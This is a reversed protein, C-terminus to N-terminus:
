GHRVSRSCLLPKSGPWRREPVMRARMCRRLNEICMQMTRKATEIPFGNMSGSKDIVFIMEKPVVQEPPLYIGQLANRSAFGGGVDITEIECGTREEVENMFSAMIAAQAGIENAMACTMLAVVTKGSGSNGGIMLVKWDLSCETM